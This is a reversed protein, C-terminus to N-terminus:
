SLGLMLLSETEDLSYVCISLLKVMLVHQRGQNEMGVQQDSVCNQELKKDRSFRVSQNNSLISATAHLAVDTLKQSPLLVSM